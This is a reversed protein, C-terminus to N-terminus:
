HGGPLTTKKGGNTTGKKGKSDDKKPAVYNGIVSSPAGPFREIQTGALAQTMISKWIPAAITAGFVERYCGGKICVGNLSTPQGYKAGKAPNPRGVWVSTALQPTFGVFWTAVSLNTTGTKGSAPRGGPLPGVSAATGNTLVRSLGLDMGRAIDTSLARKCSQQPIAVPKGNRDTISTIATPKCFIGDAAFTAYAAAMTLPSINIVGLTLSPYCTPIKASVKGRPQCDGSPRAQHVGISEATKAIDCIDLQQEMAVFATNVSNATADWVRMHGNGEGDGANGYDYTGGILPAGCARFSSFARSKVSADVTDNLTRGSKLWTALTFAKFTSGTQFGNSNGFAHDTSYNAAQYKRRSVSPDFYTNQTMALIKGTGPQVTVAATRVHSKDTPPVAKTVSKWATKQIKPDITTKITLGGRLLANRRQKVTKGLASFGDGDVILRQVYDCFYGNYGSNACGNKTVTVHVKLSQTRTKDYTAQDIMHLDLMRRLVINRREAAAKPHNVPSWSPPAQLMGALMASQQLTLKSAHVDYYYKAAAEVGNIKGGFWAINLYRELIQQKTLQKELGVAYRIEKLKRSNSKVRAATVGAADGQAYATEALVNRVYQQTLTSAGQEVDGNVQNTVFARILGKTDFGGHQYFRSDEIAVVAQQMSASVKALPVADRNEDYFTTLVKGNKDLVVSKESLPPQALDGPLDNFYNVSKSAAVGGAGVAPLALGAAILGAVVSCAVFAGLLGLVTRKTPAPSM